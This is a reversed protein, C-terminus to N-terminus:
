EKFEVKSAFNLTVYGDNFLPKIAIRQGNEAVAFFMSSCKEKGDKNKFKKSKDVVKVFHFKLEEM